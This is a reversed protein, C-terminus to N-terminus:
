NNKKENLIDKRNNLLIIKSQFNDIPFAYLQRIDISHVQTILLPMMSEGTELPVGSGMSKLFVYM